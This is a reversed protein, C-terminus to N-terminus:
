LTLAIQGCGSQICLSIVQAKNDNFINAVSRHRLHGLTRLKNVTQPKIFVGTYSNNSFYKFKKKEHPFYHFQMLCLLITFESNNALTHM